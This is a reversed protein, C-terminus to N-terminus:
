CKVKKTLRGQSGEKRTNNTFVTYSNSWQAKSELKRTVGKFGTVQAGQGGSKRVQRQM